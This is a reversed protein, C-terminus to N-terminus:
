AAPRQEPLQQVLERDSEHWELLRVGANRDICIGAEPLAVVGGGQVVAVAHRVCDGADCSLREEAEPVVKRQGIQLKSRPHPLLRASESPSVHFGPSARRAGVGSVPRRAFEAESLRM